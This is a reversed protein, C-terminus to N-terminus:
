GTKKRNELIENYIMETDYKDLWKHRKKTYDGKGHDFQKLFRLLGTLGLKKELAELGALRVQEDTMSNVNMM